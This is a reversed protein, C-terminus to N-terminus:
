RRWKEPFLENEKYKIFRRKEGEAVDLENRFIWQGDIQLIDIPKLKEDFPKVSIKSARVYQGLKRFVTKYSSTTMSAAYTFWYGSNDFQCMLGMYVGRKFSIDKDINWKM